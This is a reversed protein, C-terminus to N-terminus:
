PLSLASLAAVDVPEQAFVQLPFLYSNIDSPTPNVRYNPISIRSHAFSAYDVQDNNVRTYQFVILETTSVIKLM